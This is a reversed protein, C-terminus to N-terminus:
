DGHSVGGFASYSDDGVGVPDYVKHKARFKALCAPCRYDNTPTGCDHCVRVFPVQGTSYERRYASACRESCFKRNRRHTVFEKGCVLCKGYEVM